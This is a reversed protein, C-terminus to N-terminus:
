FPSVGAPGEITLKTIGYFSEYGTHSWYDDTAKWPITPGGNAWTAQSVTGYAAAWWAGLIRFGQDAKKLRWSDQGQFPLEAWHTTRCGLSPDGGDWFVPVADADTSNSVLGACMAASAAHVTSTRKARFRGAKGNSTAGNSFFRISIVVPQDPAGTVDPVEGYFYDPGHDLVNLVLYGLPPFNGAIRVEGNSMGAFNGNLLIKQTPQVQFNGLVGDVTQLTGPPITVPTPINLPKNSKNSSSRQAGALAGQAAANALALEDRLKVGAPPASDVSELAISRRAAARRRKLDGVTTKGGNADQIVTDDPKALLDQLRVKSGRTLKVVEAAAAQGSLSGLVLALALIM